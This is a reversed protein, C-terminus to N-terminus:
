GLLIYEELAFNFAVLLSQDLLFLQYSHQEALALVM